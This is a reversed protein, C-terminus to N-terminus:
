VQGLSKFLLYQTQFKYNNHKLNSNFWHTTSKILSFMAYYLQIPFSVSGFSLEPKYDLNQWNPAQFLFCWAKSERDTSILLIINKRGPNNFPIILMILSYM